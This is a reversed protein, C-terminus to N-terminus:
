RACIHSPPDLSVKYFKVIKDIPFKGDHYWNIMEPVFQVSDAILYGCEWEESCVKEPISDGEISGMVFRGSQSHRANALVRVSSGHKGKWAVQRAPNSLLM